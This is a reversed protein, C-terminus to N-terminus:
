MTFRAQVIPKGPLKLAVVARAGHGAALGTKGELLNAGAPQLKVTERKGEVQVTVTVETGQTAVPKMHEDYIYVRVTSDKILLEMHSAGAHELKGGNPGKDGMASHDHKHQAMASLPALALLASLLLTRFMSM